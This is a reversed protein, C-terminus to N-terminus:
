LRPMEGFWCVFHKTQMEKDLLQKLVNTSTKKKVKKCKNSMEGAFGLQRPTMCGKTSTSRLSLGIVVVM